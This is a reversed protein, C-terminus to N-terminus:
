THKPHEREPAFIRLSCLIVGWFALHLESNLLKRLTEITTAEGFLYCASALVQRFNYPLGIFTSILERLYESLLLKAM